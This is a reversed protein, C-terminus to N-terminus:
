CHDLLIVLDTRFPTQLHVHPDQEETIGLRTMIHQGGLYAIPIQNLLEFVAALRRYTDGPIM